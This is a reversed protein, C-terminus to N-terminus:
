VLVERKLDCMYCNCNEEFEQIIRKNEQRYLDNDIRGNDFSNKLRLFEGEIKVPVRNTEGDPFLYPKSEHAYPVYAGNICTFDHTIGIMVTKPFKPSFSVGLGFTNITDQQCMLCYGHNLAVNPHNGCFYRKETM